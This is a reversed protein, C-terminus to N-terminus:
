KVRTFTATSDILVSNGDAALVVALTASTGPAAIVDNTGVAPLTSSTGTCFLNASIEGGTESVFQIYYSGREMGNLTSDTPSFSAVLYEGSALFTVVQMGSAETGYKWSGVIPEYSSVVRVLEESFPDLPDTSSINIQNPGTIQLNITGTGPGAPGWDGTTDYTANFTMVGTSADLSYTGYEMGPGGIIAGSLPDTDAIGDEAHIYHSADLFTVVIPNAMGFPITWGGLMSPTFKSVLQSGKARYERTVLDAFNETILFLDGPTYNYDFYGDADYDTYTDGADYRGNMNADYTLSDWALDGDGDGDVQIYTVRDFVLDGDMDNFIDTLPDYLGDSNVDVILYEQRYDGDGDVDLGQVCENYSVTLGSLLPLADGIAAKSLSQDLGARVATSRAPAAYSSNWYPQCDIQAQQLATTSSVFTMELLNGALTSSDIVQSNAAGDIVPTADNGLEDVLTDTGKDPGSELLFVVRDGSLSPVYNIGYVYSDRSDSRAPDTLNLWDTGFASANGSTSIFQSTQGGWLEPGIAVSAPQYWQLSYDAWGTPKTPDIIGAKTAYPGMHGSTLSFGALPVDLGTGGVTMTIPTDSADVFQWDGSLFTLIVTNAGEIIDGATSVMELEQLMTMGPTYPNAVEEYAWARFEVNGVPVSITQTAIGTLPDPTLRIDALTNYFKDTVMVQIEATREDILAKQLAAQPFQVSLNVTGTAAKAVGDSNTSTLDSSGGCGALLLLAIAAVAGFKRIIQQIM